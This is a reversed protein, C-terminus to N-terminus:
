CSSVHEEGDRQPVPKFCDPFLTFRRLARGDARAVDIEVPRHGPRTHAPGVVFVFWGPGHAVPLRAGYEFRITVSGVPANAPTRGYISWVGSASDGIASEGFGRNRAPFNCSGTTTDPRQVTLTCMSGPRSLPAIYFDFTGRPTTFHAVHRISDPALHEDVVIGGLTTRDRNLMTQFERRINLPAPRGEGPFYRTVLGRVGASASVAVLIAAALAIVLAARRTLRRRRPEARRVVDDWAQPAADVPPAMRDLLATTKSDFESM